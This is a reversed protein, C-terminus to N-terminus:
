GSMSGAQRRRTADVGVTVEVDDLIATVAQQLQDCRQRFDELGLCNAPALTLEVHPMRGSRRTRVRVLEEPAIGSAKIANAIRQRLSEPLSRDLLDPLAESMMALGISLQLVAVFSGGIADFWLSIVPDRVLAAITIMVQVVMSATLKVKRARLQAKFVPSDDSRAAAIMAFWGLANILTNVGNVVAATALGLPTAVAQGSLVTVLVHNAIWLGSSFLAAGIALNCFQEIKGIGFRFRRLKDRHVARLVFLSYFEVVLMLAVRIAESILTLSMTALGFIFMPVVIALDALSAYLVAAEKSREEPSPARLQSM